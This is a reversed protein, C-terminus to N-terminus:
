PPCPLTHTSYLLPTPLHVLAPHLVRACAGPTRVQSMITDAKRAVESDQTAMHNAKLIRTLEDKTIVGNGDEDFIMFSFKLKDDKGAGLSPTLIPPLTPTLCQPPTLSRKLAYQDRGGRM